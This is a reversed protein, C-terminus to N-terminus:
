YYLICCGLFGKQPLLTIEFVLFDNDNAYKQNINIFAGTLKILM